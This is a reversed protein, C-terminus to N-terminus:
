GEGDEPPRGSAPGSSVVVQAARLLRDRLRYGRRVEVIVHNDAVEDSPLHSIAEHLNPDFAAGATDIARLGFRGLAALMQEYVLRFGEVFVADTKHERAATLALDMHDLVSLLDLLLDENARVYLEEKERLTRKRYNEFDAQLRVLRAELDALQKKDKERSSSKKRKKQTGKEHPPAAPSSGSEDATGAGPEAGAADPFDDEVNTDWAPDSQIM